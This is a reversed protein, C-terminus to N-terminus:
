QPWDHHADLSQDIYIRFKLKIFILKKLIETCLFFTFNLQTFNRSLQKPLTKHIMFKRLIIMVKNALSILALKEIAHM